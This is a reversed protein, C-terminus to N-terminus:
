IFFTFILHSLCFIFLCIRNDDLFIFISFPTIEIFYFVFEGFIIVVIFFIILVSILFRLFFDISYVIRCSLSRVCRVFM